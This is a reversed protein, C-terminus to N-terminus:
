KMMKMTQNMIKTILLQEQKQSLIMVINSMLNYYLLTFKIKNISFSNGLEDPLTLTFLEQEEERARKKREKKEKENRKNSDEDYEYRTRATKRGDETPKTVKLYLLILCL